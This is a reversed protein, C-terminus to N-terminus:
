DLWPGIRFTPSKIHAEEEVEERHKRERDSFVIGVGELPLAILKQLLIGPVQNL